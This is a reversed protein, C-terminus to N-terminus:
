PAPNHHKMGNETTSDHQLHPFDMVVPIAQQLADLANLMPNIDNTKNNNRTHYKILEIRKEKISDIFKKAVKGTRDDKMTKYLSSVIYEDNNLNM